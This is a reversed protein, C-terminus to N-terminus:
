PKPTLVVFPAPEKLDGSKQGAAPIEIWRHAGGACEQVIPWYITGAADPLKGRIVFEDYHEDLLKGTWTVETVGETIQGGHGDSVPTKLPGKAITLDWGAKPMPKVSTVGDPIRVRIKLSPEGACGHGVRVVAKYYSGATAQTTELTAHAFAFAPILAAVAAGLLITKM